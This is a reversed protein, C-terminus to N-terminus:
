FGDLLAEKHGFLEYGVGLFKGDVARVAVVEAMDLQPRQQAIGLLNSGGVGLGYPQVIGQVALGVGGIHQGLQGQVDCPQGTHVLFQGKDGLGLAALAGDVLADGMKVIGVPCLDGCHVAAPYENIGFLTHDQALVRLLKVVLPGLIHGKLQRHAQGANRGLVALRQARLGCGVGAAVHVAVEVVGAIGVNDAVGYRPLDPVTRLNRIEDDAVM